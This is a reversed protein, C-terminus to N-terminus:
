LLSRLLRGPPLTHLTHTPHHHSSSALRTPSPCPCVRCVLVFLPSSWLFVPLGLLCCISQLSFLVLSNDLRDSQFLLLKYITSTTYWMICCGLWVHRHDRVCRVADLDTSHAISEPGECGISAVAGSCVVGSSGSCWCVPSLM